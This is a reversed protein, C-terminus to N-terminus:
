PTVAYGLFEAHPRRVEDWRRTFGDPRERRQTVTLLLRRKARSISVFFAAREDELNGWFTQTEVGLLVVSDFELGKSKHITMIRVANDEAFRGLVHSLEPVIGLMESIRTCTQAIVDDLRTGQEYDASLAVLSDRGLRDLFSSILPAVNALTPPRALAQLKNRADDSFRRWRMQFEYARQEDGGTAELVEMLRAYAEPNGDTAAVRLFDVILCTAPEASLDQLAQENRFPIRRKALEAELRVAYLEPQRSVLVAIQSAPVGEDM